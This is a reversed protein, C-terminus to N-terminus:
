SRRLEWQYMGNREGLPQLGAKELVRISAANDMLCEATITLIEPIQFAQVILGCLMETAYGKNRYAPIISYGAVIRGQADPGGTFGISGILVNEARHVIIGDWIPKSPNKIHLGIFFPLADTYDSGPWDQPVSANCISALKARDHLTAELIELTSPIWLLRETEFQKM